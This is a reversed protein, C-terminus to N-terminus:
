RLTLYRVLVAVFLGIMLIWFFIGFVTGVVEEADTKRPPRPSRIPTAIALILLSIVLGVLLFMLWATGYWVPGWPPLWAGGAWMAFLLILFLFLASPGVADSRAPHRWGFGWALVGSLILALALVFLFDTFFM